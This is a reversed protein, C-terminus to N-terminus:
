LYLQVLATSCPLGVCISGCLYFADTAYAYRRLTRWSHSGLMGAKRAEARAEDFSWRMRSLCLSLSLSYSGEKDASVTQRGAQAGWAM